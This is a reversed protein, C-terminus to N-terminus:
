GKCRSRVVTLDVAAAKLQEIAITVDSRDYSTM